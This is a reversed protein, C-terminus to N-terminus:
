DIVSKPLCCFDISGQSTNHPQWTSPAFLAFVQGVSDPRTGSVRQAEGKGEEEM